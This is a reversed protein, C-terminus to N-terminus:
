NDIFLFIGANTSCKVQFWECIGNVRIGTGFSLQHTSFSSM